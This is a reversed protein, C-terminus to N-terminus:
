VTLKGITALLEQKDTASLKMWENKTKVVFTPTSMVNYNIADFLGEDTSIDVENVEIGNENRIEQAVRKADPCKPCNPKTYVTIRAQM